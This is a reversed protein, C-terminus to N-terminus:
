TLEKILEEVKVRLPEIDKQITEWVILWNINFYAHIYYNRSSIIKAWEVESHQKMLDDSLFNVAEGIIEIHKLCAYKLLEDRLFQDETFGETNSNIFNISELIHELRDLDHEGKKM